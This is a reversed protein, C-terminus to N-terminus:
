KGILAILGEALSGRWCLYDHGGYYESYVVPYGKLRLIDRLHRNTAVQLAGSEFKGVEVYFRLPLKPREAYQEILWGTGALYRTGLTKRWDPTFWYSGSQSLINGFVESHTLGCYAACLGGFSSGAAVARSPDSSVNYHARVVPVLERALFDAFTASCTLDRSRMQQSQSDVLVLVMPPIKGDALLNDLIVPTPVYSDAFDGYVEGDFAVLLGYPSAKADFGPPTYVAYSREENLIASKITLRSLKGRPVGQRERIYQQAPAGPLEFSSGISFSHPRLLDPATATFNVAKPETLQGDTDFAYTGRATNPITETRYWLDTDLLRTLPKESEQPLGGDLLVRKTGPDGRWIFTVWSNADDGPISEILPTKDRIATWFAALKDREGSQLAAALKDLTPSTISPDASSARTVQCRIKNRLPETHLLKLGKGTRVWTDRDLEDEFSEDDQKPDLFAPQVYFTLTRVVVVIKDGDQTLSQPTSRIPGLAKVQQLASKFRAEWEARDYAQGELGTGTYEAALFEAAGSLNGREIASNLRDYAAQIEAKLTSDDGSAVSSRPNLGIVAVILLLIPIHRM